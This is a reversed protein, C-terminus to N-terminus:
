FEQIKTIKNEITKWSMGDKGSDEVVLLAKERASMRSVAMITQWGIVTHKIEIEIAEGTLANIGKYQM